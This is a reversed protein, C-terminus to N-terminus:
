AAAPGTGSRMGLRLDGTGAPGYIWLSTTNAEFAVNYNSGGVISPSSGPMMGLGTDRTGAAGTTWLNHTNAQFAIGFGGAGSAITPSTGAAMGLGRDGTGPAGWIWLNGTNAQFAVAYGSSGCAMAPSTGRMMGLGRDGTGSAGYTWLDGTNAQFAVAYRGNCSAIAPNTGRMMGLGLDRSGGSGAIWLNGTNAQFAVEYGSGGLWSISPSTGAMMGLGLDRTGLAGTVWLNGTNAQFAIEYGNGVWTIAPNTGAMMGLGHDGTGAHGATWLNITNAEFAIGYASLGGTAGAGGTGGSSGTGSGGVPTVYGTLAAGGGNNTSNRQLAVAWTRGDGNYNWNGQVVDPRTKGASIVIGVHATGYIAADGPQPVYGSSASHYTGHAQGYSTFSSVSSTLGSIGAGAQRWVWTAFDACWAWGYHGKNGFGSACGSSVGYLAGTYKNCGSGMPSEPNGPGQNPGLQSQAISSASQGLTSATAPTAAGVCVAGFAIFTALLPTLAPKPKRLHRAGRLYNSMM